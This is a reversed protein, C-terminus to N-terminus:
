GPTHTLFILANVNKYGDCDIFAETQLSEASQGHPHLAEAWALKPVTNGVDTGAGTTPYSCSLPQTSPVDVVASSDDSRDHRPEVGGCGVMTVAGACVLAATMKATFLIATTNM